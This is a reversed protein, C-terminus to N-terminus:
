KLGCHQLLFETLLRQGVDMGVKIGGAVVKAAKVM